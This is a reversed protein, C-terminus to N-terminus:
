RRPASGPSRPPASVLRRRPRRPGRLGLEDRGTRHRPSPNSGSGENQLLRVGDYRSVVERTRDTSGDDVVVVDAPPRTQGLISDLTTEIFAEANHTPIVVAVTGLTM